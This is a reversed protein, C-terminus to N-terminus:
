KRWEIPFLAGAQESTVKTGVLSLAYALVPDRKAAMDAPTPLKIEDPTVGVHELSKGDTMVIDADTVSVLYPVIVEVGTQHGYQKARMVAGASRDGIVTGRKELQIVRAFLEAASGSESDILVVLKGGFIDGGRTKAIMPKEEKRRKLDGVKVDHDLMNGLLRLLTEEYGGGNGRLDLVLGTRKRFKGAFDDVEAKLMDFQPMKWIFVDGMEIYRHRHLRSESEGERIYNALAMPDMGTLDTVAKLQQMKALVDLQYSKADPKTVIVRMGPRPRLTRYNYQLKWLNERVPAYGDVSYVEDGERLGKAEADSGPKVATVYCKDGIMQMQWGYEVKYARSPPVFFTHSDDLEIVTQAIIGLIQGLSTATKIKEDAAQFRTELDMGHFAPDYYNKKLDDKIAKLMVHGRDRDLSSAAQQGSVVWLNSALLLPLLPLLPFRLSLASLKM